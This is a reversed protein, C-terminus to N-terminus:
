RVDPRGLARAYIQPDLREMGREANAATFGFQRYLEHADRTALSWRRLGQLDAHDALYAMMRKGVGRGRAPADVWVDCLWAFTARDTVVRAFGVMERGQFAGVCLSNEAARRFVAFPIDKAWYSEGSIWRFARALDIRARDDTLILEDTM